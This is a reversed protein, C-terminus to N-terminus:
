QTSLEATDTSRNCRREINYLLRAVAILADSDIRDLEGPLNAVRRTIEAKKFTVYAPRMAGDSRYKKEISM